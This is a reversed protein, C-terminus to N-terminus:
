ARIVQRRFRLSVEEGIYFGASLIVLVILFRLFGASAM